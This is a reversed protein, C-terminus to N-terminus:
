LDMDLQRKVTTKLKEMQESARKSLANQRVLKAYTEYDALVSKITRVYEVPANSEVILDDTGVAEGLGGRGSCLTPIGSIGSELPVRGFPEEWRSPMLVLKTERYVERMNDVYGRYEVNTSEQIRDRIGAPPERGVVLFDEGPLQDAVDLTVNIGKNLTPTVHLIKDGTTEIKFEDVDVFPYVVKPNVGWQRNYKKATHKSNAVLLDSGHIVEGFLRRQVAQAVPNFVLRGIGRKSLSSPLLSEDRLFLIQPADQRAGLLGLEHQAFILSPCFRELQRRFRLYFELYATPVQLVGHLDLDAALVRQSVVRDQDLNGSTHGFMITRHEPALDEFLTRMSEEAGGPQGLRRALGAIRM